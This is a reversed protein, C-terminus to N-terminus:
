WIKYKEHFYIAVSKMRENRLSIDASLADVDNQLYKSDNKYNSVFISFGNKIINGSFWVDDSFYFENSPAEFVDKQFFKKKLLTGYFAEFVDIFGEREQRLGCPTKNFSNHSTIWNSNNFLYSSHTIGFSTICSDPYRVSDKLLNASLNVDYIFDDDVIIIPVDDDINNINMMPLFKTAAGYDEDCINIVVNDPFSPIDLDEYSVSFRNYYKPINVFIKEPKIIQNCLSEIVLNLKSIRSPITTLSFYYPQFPYFNLKIDPYFGHNPKDLITPFNYDSLKLDQDKILDKRIYTVEIVDPVHYFDDKLIVPSHNNIHIHIPYFLKNIKQLCEIHLKLNNDNTLWHFEVVICCCKKLTNESTALLSSFEDGEVDIKLIINNDNENELLTNLDKVECMINGIMKSSNSSYLGIKSFTIKEDCKDNPLKSITPDFLFAPVNFRNVFDEDFSMDNSIGFSYLKCFTINNPIVYGGDYNNGVRIKNSIDYHYVKLEDLLFRFSYFQKMEKQKEHKLKNDLFERVPGALWKMRFNYSEDNEHDFRNPYYDRILYQLMEGRVGAFHLIFHGPYYNFWYSNMETPYAVHIHEKCNMFNKDYLNIFSGQEWNQYRENKDENPDYTNSEICKIFEITFDNSKIIMVGTNIMRWDSGCIIDVPYSEIFSEIKIENNMILIDADIWVIYDYSEIYKLILPIKTWPIPKEPNYVSEDEIFDYGHLNCYHIKNQRSWYTNEKYKDGISMFCVGIKNM